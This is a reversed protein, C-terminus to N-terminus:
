AELVAQSFREPDFTDRLIVLSRGYTKALRNLKEVHQDANRIWRRKLSPRMLVLKEENSELDIVRMFGFDPLYRDEESDKVLVPIVDHNSLREFVHRLLRDPILFDSILFILKRKGALRDAAQLLGNANPENFSLADFSKAVEEEISRRNSAQIFLSENRDGGCAALGFRDGSHRVSRALAVCLERILQAKSTKGKYSVSRSSDIIAYVDISAKQEFRRVFIEEFPNQLSARFDIRRADPYTVFPVIDKFSGLAGFDSSRHAGIKARRLIGRPKYLIAAAPNM